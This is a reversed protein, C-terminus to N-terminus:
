AGADPQQQRRERILIRLAQYRKIARRVSSISVGYDAAIKAQTENPSGWWRHYIDYDDKPTLKGSVSRVGRAREVVGVTCGNGGGSVDARLRVVRRSAM